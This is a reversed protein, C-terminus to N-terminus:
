LHFTIEGSLVPKEEGSIMVTLTGNPNIDKCVVKTKTGNIEAYVSKDKLYNFENVIKIYDSIDKKYLKLEKKIIKYVTKKFKKINVMKNTELKVSTPPANYEGKFETQNVNIGIGVIVCNDNDDGIVSELLVGCIKKDSSYVDNPWKILLNNVGLTKLAKFVCAGMLVSLGNVKEILKKDKIIFSFTLNEGKNSTWTRNMRGHGATQYDCSVFTLNKLFSRRRKIFTSSSDLEKYHYSKKIFM